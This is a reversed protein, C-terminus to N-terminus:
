RCSSTLTSEIEDVYKEWGVAQYTRVHGAGSGVLVRGCSSKSAMVKAEAVTVLPDKTGVVVLLPKDLKAVSMPGFSLNMDHYMLQGWFVIIYSYWEPIGNVAKLWRPVVVKLTPYPSDAVVANVRSDEAALVYAVAAGMSYGILGIKFGPFKEVIYNIVAKADYEEELPGITTRSGGSTGHARFDFLVVWFGDKSLFYSLKLIAPNAKCSTYGHMIIVVYHRDSGSPRIIWGSLRIGDKTIVTFNYYSLGLFAPTETEKCRKPHTGVYAVYIPFAVFIIVLIVVVVGIIIGKVKSVYIV